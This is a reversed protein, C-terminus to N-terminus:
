SEGDSVKLHELSRTFDAAMQLAELKNKTKFLKMVHKYYFEPAEEKMQALFVVDKARYNGFIEGPLHRKELWAGFQEKNLKAFKKWRKAHKRCCTTESQVASAPERNQGHASPISYTPHGHSSTVHADTQKTVSEQKTIGDMKDEGSPVCRRELEQILEVIKTEFPKRVFDYHYDGATMLALWGEATYDPDVLLPIRARRLSSAYAAERRCYESRQYSYSMAILVVSANQIAEAMRDYVNERMQEIDMWVPFGAETIAQKIRLLLPRQERSYSIMVHGKAKKEFFDHALDAYKKSSHLHESLTWLVGKASERVMQFPSSKALDFLTSVVDTEEDFVFTKKNDDDFALQALTRTATIQEIEETQKALKVLPGVVGYEVLTKKNADFIALNGIIKALEFAFWGNFQGSACRIGEEIGCMMYEVDAQNGMMSADHENMIDSASALMPVSNFIDNKMVDSELYKLYVPLYGAARVSTVTVDCFTCLNHTTASIVQVMAKQSIDAKGKIYPIRIADLADRGYTLLDKSASIKRSVDPCFMTANMYFSWIAKETPTIAPLKKRRKLCFAAMDDLLNGEQFVKASFENGLRFKESLKLGTMMIFGIAEGLKRLASTVETSDLPKGQSRGQRIESLATETDDRIRNVLEEKKNTTGLDSDATLVKSSFM